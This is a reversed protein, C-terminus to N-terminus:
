KNDSGIAPTNSVVSNNSVLSMKYGGGSGSYRTASYSNLSILLLLLLLPSYIKINKM